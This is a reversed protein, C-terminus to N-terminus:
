RGSIEGLSNLYDDPMWKWTIQGIKEFVIWYRIKVPFVLSYRVRPRESHILGRPHRPLPMADLGFASSRERGTVPTALMTAKSRMKAHMGSERIRRTKTFAAHVKEDRNMMKPKQGERRENSNGIWVSKECENM